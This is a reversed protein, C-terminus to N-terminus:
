QKKYANEFLKGYWKTNPNSPLEDIFQFKRSGLVLIGYCNKIFYLQGCIGNLSYFSSQNNLFTNALPFVCVYVPQPLAVDFYSASCVPNEFSQARWCYRRFTISTCLKEFGSYKSDVFDKLKDLLLILKNSKKQEFWMQTLSFLRFIESKTM